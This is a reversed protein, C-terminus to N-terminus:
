ERVTSNCLLLDNKKIKSPKKDNSKIKYKSVLTFWENDLSKKKILESFRLRVYNPNNERFFVVDIMIRSKVLVEVV